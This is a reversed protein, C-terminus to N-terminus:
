QGSDNDEGGGVYGLSRLRDLVDEDTGEGFPKDVFAALPELEALLRNM